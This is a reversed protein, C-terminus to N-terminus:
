PEVTPSLNFLTFRTPQMQHINPDEEELRKKKVPPPPTLSRPLRRKIVIHRRQQIERSVFWHVQRSIVDNVHRSLFIRGM